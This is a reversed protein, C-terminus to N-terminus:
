GRENPQVAIQAIRVDTARMCMRAVGAIVSRLRAPSLRAAFGGSCARFSDDAAHGGMGRDLCADGLQRLRAHADVGLHGGLLDLAADLLGGALEPALHPDGAKALALHRRRDHDAPEAALRHEVLRQAAREAAPVDVRDVRGPDRGDALGLEVDALQGGLALRQRERDLDAHARLRLSPSYLPRSTPRRSGCTSSRRDVLLELAQAVAERRELGDLARGLVAIVDHDVIEARTSPSGNSPPSPRSWSSSSPEPRSIGPKSSCSTPAPAPSCRVTSTM